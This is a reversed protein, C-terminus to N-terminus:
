SAAADFYFVICNEATDVLFQGDWKHYYNTFEAKANYQVTVRPDINTAAVGNGDFMAGLVGSIDVSAGSPTKTKIATRNALSDDTGTGQWSAVTEAEPLKTFENHFTDSQLYVDAHHKFTSNLVFHLRSKPTNRDKGQVNHLVSYDRLYDVYDGMIATAFKQFDTSNIAATLDYLPANPNADNYLKALNIARTGTLNTGAKGDAYEKAYTEGIAGNVARQIMLDTKRDMMTRVGNEIFSIFNFMERPSTFASKVQRETISIPIEYTTKKNWCQVMIKPRYFIHPDYSARDELEYSENEEAEPMEDWAIKELISGFQWGDMLVSRMRGEYTYEAFVVKGVKDNIAKAYNDVGMVSLLTNGVEVVNTLDEELLAIEGNQEQIIENTLEAIQKVQM